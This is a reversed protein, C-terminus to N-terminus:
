CRAFSLFLRWRTHGSHTDTWHGALVFKVRASWVTRWRALDWGTEVRAHLLVSDYWTLSIYCCYLTKKRRSTHHCFAGTCDATLDLHFHFSQTSTTTTTEALRTLDYPLIHARLSLKLAKEGTWDDNKLGEQGWIGMWSLFQPGSSSHIHVNLSVLQFQSLKNSKMSKTEADLVTNTNAGFVGCCISRWETAPRITKIKMCYYM